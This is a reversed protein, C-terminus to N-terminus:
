KSETAELSETLFVGIEVSTATGDLNCRETMRAELYDLNFGGPAWVEIEFPLSKDPVEMLRDIVDQVTKGVLSERQNREDIRENIVHARLASWYDEGREIVITKKVEVFVSEDVAEPLSMLQKVKEVDDQNFEM